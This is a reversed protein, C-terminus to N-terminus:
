MEDMNKLATALLEVKALGRGIVSSGPPGGSSKGTYGGIDAIWRVVEALTPTAGRSVDKPRRLVIVADIEWRSLEQTAAVEPTERALYTLRTARAAVAALITAWKLISERRRLQTDEVNCLGRKWTRHFEEIRWRTTYGDIVAVADSLSTVPVTTMLRWHLPNSRGVERASVVYVPFYQRRKRGVKLEVTVCRARVELRAVRAPRERRAPVRVTHYGLLPARSMCSFLSNKRAKRHERVTRDRAVRVTMRLNRQQAVQLVAWADYGRDLQYWPKVQPARQSFLAHVQELLEVSHRTETHLSYLRKRHVSRQMRAWYRQGCLGIPTGELSVALASAVLLGRGRQSWNGVQGVDRKRSEDILALSSGDIAVFVGARGLCQQV